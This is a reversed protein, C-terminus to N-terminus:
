VFLESRFVSCVSMVTLQCSVCRECDSDRSLRPRSRPGMRALGRSQFIRNVIDGRRASFGSGAPVPVAVPCLPPISRAAPAARRRQRVTSRVGTVFGRTFTPTPAGVLTCLAAHPPLGCLPPALRLTAARDLAAVAAAGHGGDGQPIADARPFAASVPRARASPWARAHACPRPRPTAPAHCSPSCCVQAEYSWEHLMLGSWEGQSGEGEGADGAPPARLRLSGMTRCLRALLCPLAPPRRPASSNASRSALPAM